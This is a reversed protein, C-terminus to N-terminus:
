LRREFSAVAKATAGTSIDRVFVSIEYTGAPLAGVQMSLFQRRLPGVTTEVRSVQIPPPEEHRALLQSLWSRRDRFVPRVTCDYVFRADGSSSQTLNYIEFYAHM